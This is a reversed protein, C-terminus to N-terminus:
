GRKMASNVAMVDIVIGDEAQSPYQTGYRHIRQLFANDWKTNQASRYNFALISEPEGFKIVRAVAQDDPHCQRGSGDTSFVYAGAPIRTVLDQTVNAKSGHHPLKFVDVPLPNGQGVLQDVGSLLVNPHADAGFLCSAGAFELLLVISSGNAASNDSKTQEGALADIDLGDLALLPTRVPEDEIFEEVPEAARVVEVWKTRLRELEIRGPSLVTCQLGGPLTRTPITQSDPGDGRVVAACSFHRNWSNRSELLTSLREAEAPGMSPLGSEPLHRYGNFWVDDPISAITSELMTLVGGIHDNDIHTVVLLELSKLNPRAPLVRGTRATGGDILVRHITAATGYEVLLADGIGAPLVHVRFM